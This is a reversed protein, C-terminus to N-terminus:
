NIDECETAFMVFAREFIYKFLCCANLFTYTIFRLTLNKNLCVTFVSKCSIFLIYNGPVQKDQTTYSM